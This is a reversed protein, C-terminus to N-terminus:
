STGFCTPSKTDTTNVNRHTYPQNILQIKTVHATRVTNVYYCNEPITM